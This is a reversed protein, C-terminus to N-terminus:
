RGNIVGSLDRMNKDWRINCKHTHANLGEWQHKCPGGPVEGSVELSEGMASFLIRKTEGPPM